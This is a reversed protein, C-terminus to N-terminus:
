ESGSYQADFKALLDDDILSSQRRTFCYTRSSENILIHEGTGYRKSFEFFMYPRVNRLYEEDFVSNRNM